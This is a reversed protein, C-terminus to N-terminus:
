SAGPDPESPSASSASAVRVALDRCTSGQLVLARAANQLQAWVPWSPQGKRETSESRALTHLRAAARNVLVALALAAQEQTQGETLATLQADAKAQYERAEGAEAM